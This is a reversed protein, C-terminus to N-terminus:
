NFNDILTKGVAYGLGILPLFKVAAEIVGYTATQVTQLGLFNRRINVGGLLFKPASSSM